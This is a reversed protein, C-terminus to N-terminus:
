WLSPQGREPRRMGASAWIQAMPDSWEKSLIDPPKRRNGGQLDRSLLDKADAAVASAVSVSSSGARSMPLRAAAYGDLQRAPPPSVGRGYRRMMVRQEPDDYGTAEGTTPRSSRLSRSSSISHDSRDSRDTAWGTGPGIPAAGWTSAHLRSASSSRVERDTLSGGRKGKSDGGVRAASRARRRHSKSGEEGKPRGRSSRATSRSTDSGVRATSRSTDSGVGPAGSRREAAKTRAGTANVRPVNLPPSLPTPMPPPLSTSAPDDAPHYYVLVSQKDRPVNNKGSQCPSAFACADSLHVRM